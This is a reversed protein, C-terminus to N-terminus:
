GNIVGKFKTKLEMFDDKMHAIENEIAHFRNDGEDMRKDFKQIHSKLTSNLDDVSRTLKAMSEGFPSILKKILVAAFIVLMLAIVMMSLIITMDFGLAKATTFLAILEAM